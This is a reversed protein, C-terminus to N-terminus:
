DTVDAVVVGTAPDVLYARGGLWAYSYSRIAPVRLAVNQPVAFPPVNAPLVTGIVMPAGPQVFVEEDAAVIPPAVAPLAVQRQVFPAPAVYPVPAVSPAVIVQQRPVVEREVITQYVIHRERPSLALRPVARATRTATKRVIQARSARQEARASVQRTVLGHATRNVEARRVVERTTIEDVTDPVTEVVTAAPAVPQVVTAAPVAPQVITPAVAPAVSAVVPRRTVITGAPTQTVTTEVPEATITRTIVTQASAGGAALAVTVALSSAALNSILNANM